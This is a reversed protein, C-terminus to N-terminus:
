VIRRVPINTLLLAALLPVPSFKIIDMFFILFEKEAYLSKELLFFALVIPGVSLSRLSADIFALLMGMFIGGLIYGLLSFNGYLDTLITSPTDDIEEKLMEKTEVSIPAEIAAPEGAAIAGAISSKSNDAPIPPTPSSELRESRELMNEGM